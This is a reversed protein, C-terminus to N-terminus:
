QILAGPFMAICGKKATCQSFRQMCQATWYDRNTDPADKCHWPMCGKGFKYCTPVDITGIEVPNEGGGNIRCSVKDPCDALAPVAWGGVMVLCLWFIGSRFLKAYM